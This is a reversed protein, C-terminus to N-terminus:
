IHILSLHRVTGDFMDAPISDFKALAAEAIGQSVIVNIIGTSASDLQASGSCSAREAASIARVLDGIIM